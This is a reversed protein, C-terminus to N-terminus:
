LPPPPASSQRPRSRTPSRPSRRVKNAKHAVGCRAAGRRAVGRSEGTERWVKLAAQINAKDLTGRYFGAVTAHGPCGGERVSRTLTEANFEPAKDSPHIFKDARGALVERM